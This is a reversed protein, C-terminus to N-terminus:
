ATQYRDIFAVIEALSPAYGDTTDVDISPSLTLRAFGSQEVTALFELDAHASRSPEERLRREVRGRAIAPDVVCQVV